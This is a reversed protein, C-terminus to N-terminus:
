LARGPVSVMDTCVLVNAEERYPQKYTWSICQNTFTEYPGACRSNVWALTHIDSIHLM